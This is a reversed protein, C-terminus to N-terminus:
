VGNRGGKKKRRTRVAMDIVRRLDKLMEEYTKERLPQKKGLQYRAM